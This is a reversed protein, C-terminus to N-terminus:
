IKYICIPDGYENQVLLVKIIRLLLLLVMVDGVIQLIPMKKAGKVQRRLNYSAYLNLQIM